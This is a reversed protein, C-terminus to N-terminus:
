VFRWNGAIGCDQALEHAFRKDAVMNKNASSRDNLLTRRQFARRPDAFVALNAAATVDAFVHDDAVTNDHPVGAFELIGDQEIFHLHRM